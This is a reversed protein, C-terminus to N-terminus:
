NPQYATAPDHHHTLFDRVHAIGHLTLARQEHLSKLYEIATTAAISAGYDHLQRILDDLLMALEDTRELNLLCEAIDLRVLSAEGHLGAGTFEHEIAYLLPMADDHQEERMSLRALGWRARVVETALGVAHFRTIADRYCRRSARINGLEADCSAINSTLRAVSEEDHDARARPLLAKWEERARVFNGAEYHCFGIAILAGRYGVADGFVRLTGAAGQLVQIAQTIRGMPVLTMGRVLRILAEDYALVPHNALSAQAHDLASIANTYDGQHRLLNAEEKWAIAQTQAVLPSPYDHEHLLLAIRRATVALTLAAAPDHDRERTMAAHLARVAGLTRWAGSLDAPMPTRAVLLDAVVHEEDSLRTSAARMMAAGAANSETDSSPWEGARRVLSAFGRLSELRNRCSACTALHDEVTRSPTQFQALLEDNTVHRM